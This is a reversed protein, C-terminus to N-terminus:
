LCVSCLLCADSYSNRFSVRMESNRNDPHLTEAQPKQKQICDIDRQRYTERDRVRSRERERSISRERDRERERM